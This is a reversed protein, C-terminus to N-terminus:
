RGSADLMLRSARAEGVRVEDMRGESLRTARMQGRTRVELGSGEGGWGDDEGNM